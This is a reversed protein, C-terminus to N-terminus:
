LKNLWDIIERKGRSIRDKIRSDADIKQVTCSIMKEINEIKLSFIGKIKEKERIEELELSLATIFLYVISFAIAAELAIYRYYGLVALVSIIFILWIPNKISM